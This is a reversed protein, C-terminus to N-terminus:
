HGGMLYKLADGYYDTWLAATNVEYPVLGHGRSSMWHRPTVSVNQHGLSILFQAFLCRDGHEYRNPKDIPQTQLWAIVEEVTYDM